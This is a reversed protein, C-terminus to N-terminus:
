PVSLHPPGGTVRSAHHRALARLSACVAPVLTPRRSLRGCGFYSPVAHQAGQINTSSPLGDHGLAKSGASYIPGGGPNAMGCLIWPGQAQICLTHLMGKVPPLGPLVIGYLLIGHSFHNRCATRIGEERDEGSQVHSRLFEDERQPHVPARLVAAAEGVARRADARKHLAELRQLAGDEGAHLRGAHVEELGGFGEGRRLPDAHHHGVGAGDLVERARHVATGLGVPHVGPHDREVSLLGVKHGPRGSAVVVVMQAEYRPADVFPDALLRGVLVPKVGQPGASAAGAAHLLIHEGVDLVVLAADLSHALRRHCNDLRFFGEKPSVLQHEADGTHTGRGRHPKESLKANHGVAQGGALPGGIRAEIGHVVLGAGADACRGADAAGPVGPQSVGEEEGGHHGASGVGVHPGEGFFQDLPALLFYLGDDGDHAFEKM